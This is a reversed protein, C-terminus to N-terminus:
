VGEHAEGLLAPTDAEPPAGRAAEWRTTSPNMAVGRVRRASEMWRSRGAKGLFGERPRPERGPGRDGHMGHVRAASRRLCAAPPRVAGEKALIQVSGHRRSRAIQGGKGVKLEVHHVLTGVPINRIPPREGAQHGGRRRHRGHRGVVPGGPVPHVTERRGRLPAARDPRVPEPRVRHRWRRRIDVKNRKFDIIRYRRKHGGGRHWVTAGRPQEPGREGEPKETLAREPKKPTLDETTLVTMGRRGPSTPKYKRIAM